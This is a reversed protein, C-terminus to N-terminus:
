FHFTCPTLELYQGVILDFGGTKSSISSEIIDAEPLIEFLMLDLRDDFRIHVSTFIAHAM